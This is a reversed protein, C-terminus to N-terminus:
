LEKLAEFSKKFVKQIDLIDPQEALWKELQESDDSLVSPKPKIQLTSKLGQRGGVEGKVATLTFDFGEIVNTYDGYDEDEALQLLQNYVEKGFEWLRVGKEEEGRIIVPAFIRTKPSLKNALQWQEKVYEGSKLEKILEVIPDKEGWNTLAYIPFKAYGYHLLVEKFPFEKDFKSPVFRLKYKGEAKPKWLYLSMDVKQRNEGGNSGKPKNLSNLRERIKDVNM